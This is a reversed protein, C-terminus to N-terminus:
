SRSTAELKGSVVATAEIGVADAVCRYRDRLLQALLGRKIQAILGPGEFVLATYLQVLSAGAKVKGYATEASEIGGVGVLPFQGEVRVFTEALLRTSLAHLPRGSLGGAEKATAGLGPPRALTTNSVIMGDIRRARAVAVIDDLEPLALDPAVKVLVPMRGHRAAAQDRAELVRALLDDLASGRQLDRLGPTNPSSVNIAAYDVLGAFAEIGRVYDAARDAADRNVGLNVGLVGGRRVVAALNRRVQAHGHNNFGLRNILAREPALRFLRPRPNGAQPKPTVTGVEVFGFGLRLLPAAVVGNKDFGAAMGLPNPFTLGFADVKLRPDDPRAAPLPVTRLAGIALAHAREPDLAFALRQALAAISM